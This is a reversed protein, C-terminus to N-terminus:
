NPKEINKGFITENTEGKAFTNPNLKREPNGHPPINLYNLTKQAITKFAPGAVEGGYHSKQPEDVVVLIAIEPNELPAFGVFSALYRSSTYMGNEDLKQATGTKGGATYGETAAAKGTGDSEIVASMIIKLKKATENSIIRRKRQPGFRKSQKGDPSRIEKVIYPKMLVGNNAIASVASILQVASVSIGHGFSIAAADVRSWKKFHALLGATELPFDIGTKRGFGFANLTSYLSKSGIMETIKIAGINSSYKIINNLSLWGHSKTDHITDRGIQYAGNECFFITNPTCAGFELAAAASFIKMTSGPEFADAVCRNRWIQHNAELFDNPNFFPYNAMALVAGTKPNMVIAMGSQGANKVVAKELASETIYQIAADITLVVDDGGLRTKGAQHVDFWRGRADRFVNFKVFEGKLTSEFEYEIGELGVSDTGTFGVLQAALRRNPYFRKYEPIFGVGPLKLNKLFNKERPSIKRKIWQFNKKTFLQKEVWERDLSLAEALRQATEKKNKIEPPYAAVSAVEDSAALRRNKVDYITGRKGQKRIFGTYERRAKKSLWEGQYVQLYVAKAVIALFFLMFVSGVILIRSDIRQKQEPKM